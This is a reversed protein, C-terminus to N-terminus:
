NVEQVQVHEEATEVPCTITVKTGSGIESEVLIQGDFDLLQQRISFLGFGGITETGKLRKSVDFGIGDDEIIVNLRESDIEIKVYV